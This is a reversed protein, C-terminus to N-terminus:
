QRSQAKLADFHAMLDEWRPDDRLPKLFAHNAYQLWNSDPNEERAYDVWNWAQELEGRWAHIYAVAVPFRDRYQERYAELGALSAAENGRSYDLMAQLMAKEDPIYAPLDGEDSEMEDIYRQATDLDGQFLKITALSNTAFSSDPALQKLKTAWKEAEDFRGLEILYGAMNGINVIHLPDLALARRHLELAHEHNGRAWERGAVVGLVLVNDPGAELARRQLEAGKEPQGLYNAFGSKRILAEPNDPDLELARDVAALSDDARPPDFLYFYIPALGVWATANNPDLEVARELLELAQQMEGPGRRSYLFRGQMTLEWSKTDIVKAQPAEGLLTLKLQAVV